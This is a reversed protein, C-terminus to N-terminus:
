YKFIPNEGDAGKSGFVDLCLQIRKAGVCPRLNIVVWITLTCSHKVVIHDENGLYCRIKYNTPLGATTLHRLNGPKGIASPIIRSM